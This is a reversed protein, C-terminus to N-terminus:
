SVYKRKLHAVIRHMLREHEGAKAKDLGKLWGNPRKPDTDSYHYFIRYFSSHVSKLFRRRPERMLNCISGKLNAPLEKDEALAHCFSQDGHQMSDWLGLVEAALNRFATYVAGGYAAVENLFSIGNVFFICDASTHLESGEAQAHMNADVTWVSSLDIMRVDYSTSGGRRRAVLNSRKTDLAILYLDSVERLLTRVGKEVSAFAQAREDASAHASSIGRHLLEGLDTWGDELLYGYARVVASSGDDCSLLVPYALYVPPTIGMHAAYLTLAMEDFQEISDDIEESVKTPKDATKLQKPARSAVTRPTNPLQPEPVNQKLADMLALAYKEWSASGNIPVNARYCNSTGCGQPTNWNSPKNGFETAVEAMAFTSYINAGKYKLLMGGEARLGVIPQGKGACGFAFRQYHKQKEIFLVLERLTPLDAPVISVTNLPMPEAATEPEPTKRKKRDTTDSAEIVEDALNTPMDSSSAGVLRLRDLRPLM